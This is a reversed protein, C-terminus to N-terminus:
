DSANPLIATLELLAAFLAERIFEPVAASVILAILTSPVLAASKARVVSQGNPPGSATPALQVILTVNVGADPPARLASTEMTEFALAAALILRLPEPALPVGVGPGVPARFTAGVDSSYLAVGTPRVLRTCPRRMVFVVPLAIVIEVSLMLPSKTCRFLQVPTTNCGFPTHWTATRNRGEAIPLRAPVSVISLLAVPLGWDTASDPVPM